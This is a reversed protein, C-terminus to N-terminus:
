RYRKKKDQIANKVSANSKRGTPDIIGFQGKIFQNKHAELKQFRKIDQIMCIDKTRRYEADPNTLSKRRHKEISELPRAKFPGWESDVWVFDLPKKMLTYDIETLTKYKQYEDRESRVPSYRTAPTYFDVGHRHETYPYKVADNKVSYVDMVGYEFAKARRKHLVSFMECGFHQNLMKCMEHADRKPNRSLVDWDRPKRTLHVQNTIEAVAQSGYIINNKKITQKVVYEKIVDQYSGYYRMKDILNCERM